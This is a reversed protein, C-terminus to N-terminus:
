AKIVVTGSLKDHWGQKRKNAAIWLFGLLVFGASIFYGFLRLAYQKKSPKEFTEADVIRMSLLMKGPTAGKCVWFGWIFTIFLTLQLIYQLIVKQIIQNEVMYKQLAENHRIADIIDTLSHVNQLDSTAIPMIEQMPNTNGFTLWAIGIFLPYFIVMVVAVDIMTAMLRPYFGVYAIQKKLPTTDKAM